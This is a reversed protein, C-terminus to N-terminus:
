SITDITMIWPMEWPLSFLLHNELSVNNSLKLYLLAAFKSLKVLDISPYNENSPFCQHLNKKFLLLTHNLINERTAKQNDRCRKQLDNQNSQGSVNMNKVKLLKASLPFAKDKRKDAHFFETESKYDSQNWTHNKAKVDKSMVFFGSMIMRM